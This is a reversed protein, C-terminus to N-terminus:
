FDRPATFCSAILLLGLVLDSWSVVVVETASGLFWGAIFTLGSVSINSRDLRNDGLLRMGRCDVTAASPRRDIIAYAVFHATVDM